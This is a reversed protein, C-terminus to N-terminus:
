VRGPLVEAQDIKVDALGVQHPWKLPPSSVQLLKSLGLRSRDFASTVGRYKTSAPHPKYVEHHRTYNGPSNCDEKKGETLGQVGLPWDNAMENLVDKASM